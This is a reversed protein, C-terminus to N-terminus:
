IKKHCKRCVREKSDGKVVYGIRTPARCSPCILAVKSAALPRSLDVIGGPDKESRKKLHRKYLNVGSVVVQGLEPFIKEVKGKKGKDKGVTVVVTDGKKIKM